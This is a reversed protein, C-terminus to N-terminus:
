ADPKTEKLVALADEWCQELLTRAYDPLKSGVEEVDWLLAAVLKKQNRLVFLEKATWSNM